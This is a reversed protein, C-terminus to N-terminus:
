FANHGKSQFSLKWKPPLLNKIEGLAEHLPLYFSSIQVRNEILRTEILYDEHLRQRENEWKPNCFFTRCGIARYKRIGCRCGDLFPCPRSSLASIPQGISASEVSRGSFVMAAAEIATLYLMPGDPEFRCCNGDARCNQAFPRIEEDLRCYLALLEAIATEWRIMDPTDGTAM